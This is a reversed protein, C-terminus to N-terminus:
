VLRIALLYILFSDLIFTYINSIFVEILLEKERKRGRKWGELLKWTCGYFLLPRKIQDGWVKVLM